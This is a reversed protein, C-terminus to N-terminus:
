ADKISRHAGAVLDFWYWGGDIFADLPLDFTTTEGKGSVTASDIHAAVGLANSRYILIEGRGSTKISLRVSPISTWRQWYGAPFANFYTGFSVRKGARVRFKQRGLVDDIRNEDTLRVPRGDVEGWTEADIYLALAEPDKDTPLVVRQLTNFRRRAPTSSARAM